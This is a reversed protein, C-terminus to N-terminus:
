KLLIPYEAKEIPINLVTIPTVADINNIGLPTRASIKLLFIIMIMPLRM